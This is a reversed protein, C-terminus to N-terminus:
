CLGRERLSVFRERGVIVHDLLPIGVTRGAEVLRRTVALDEQSPEPDGSPHNHAVVLAAANGAIAPRFVERPHVLSATQTGESVREISRLRHKGDLLLAHFCERELGRLRPAMLRHVLGPSTVAEGRRWRSAEVRRGLAFAAALRRAGEEGLSLERRLAAAGCRALVALDAQAPVRALGTEGAVVEILLETPFEDLRGEELFPWSARALTRRMDM